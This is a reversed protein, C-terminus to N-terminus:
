GWVCADWPMLDWPNLNPVLTQPTWITVPSVTGDPNVVDIQFESEKGSIWKWTGRGQKPTYPVIIHKDSVLGTAVIQRQYLPRITKAWVRIRAGPQYSDPLLWWIDLQNVAINDYIIKITVATPSNSKLPPTTPFSTFGASALLACVALYYTYGNPYRGRYLNWAAREADTLKSMWEKSAQGIRDRILAKSVPRQDYKQRRRHRIFTGGTRCKDYTLEYISGSIGVINPGYLVKVM